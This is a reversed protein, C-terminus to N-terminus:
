PLLVEHQPKTGDGDSAEQLLLVPAYGGLIASAAVERASLLASIGLQCGGVKM